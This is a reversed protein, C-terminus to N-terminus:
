LTSLEYGLSHLVEKVADYTGWLKADEALFKPDFKEKLLLKLDEIDKPRHMTAKQIIIEEIPVVFLEVGKYIKKVKRDFLIHLNMPVAKTSGISVPKVFGSTVDLEQGEFVADFGYDEIIFNTKQMHRVGAKCGLRRAFEDIDKKQMLIDIDGALRKGNTYIEIASGSFIFWDLGKLKEVLKALTEKEM